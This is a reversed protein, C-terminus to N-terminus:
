VRGNVRNVTRVSLNSQWLSRLEMDLEECHSSFGLVGVSLQGERGKRGPAAQAAPIGKRLRSALLRHCGSTCLMAPLVGLVRTAACKGLYAVSLSSPSALHVHLYCCGTGAAHFALCLLCGVSQQGAKCVVFDKSQSCLM